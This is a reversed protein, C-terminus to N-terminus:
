YAVRRITKLVYVEAGDGAKTKATVAYTISFIEGNFTDSKLDFQELIEASIDSFEITKADENGNAITTFSYTEGDFGNFTANTAIEDQANTATTFSLTFISVLVLLYNRM